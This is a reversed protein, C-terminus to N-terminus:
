VVGDGSALRVHSQGAARRLAEIQRVPRSALAEDLYGELTRARADATHSALVRRRAADGIARRRAESCGWLAARVDDAGAAPVIERGPAFFDDLGAWTDTIVPVGCAAAEFLRVSPAHGLRKMDARTLNLTWRQRAYFRSHEPPPVHEMRVVNAPWTLEPPYLPGAVVFRADPRTRAVDLLLADLAPQRDVAYTGLYGLDWQETEARPTHAHVDVGCYLPRARRAGLAELDALARGGTFSLYLDYGALTATSLYECRGAELASLTIPTDIDYFARVGQAERLVWAGVADGEPVYSGVIVADATRVMRGFRARLDDLSQYLAIQVNPLAIADRHGAYWPVDRELFRVLHGRRALAALLSRYTTAHGNGWSSTISLGIFVIRLPSTM